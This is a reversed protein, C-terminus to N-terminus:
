GVLGKEQLDDILANIAQRNDLDDAILATVATILYNIQAVALNFEAETPDEGGTAASLAALGTTVATPAAITKNATLYTQTYAGCQDVATSGHFAVLDTTANGITVNGNLATVGTVTLDGTVTADDGVVLDDGITIDSTTDAAAALALAAAQARFRKNTSEAGNTAM